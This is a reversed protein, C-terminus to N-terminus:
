DQTESSAKCDDCHVDALPRGAILAQVWDVLRVGNVEIKYFKPWELIGHGKGPATYSHLVV